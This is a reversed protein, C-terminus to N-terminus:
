SVTFVHKTLGLDHFIQLTPLDRLYKSKFRYGSTIRISGASELCADRVAEFVLVALHDSGCDEGCTRSTARRRRERLQIDVVDFEDDLQDIEALVQGIDPPASPFSSVNSARELQIALETSARQVRRAVANAAEHWGRHRCIHTQQQLRILNAMAPRTSILEEIHLSREQRWRAELRNCIMRAACCRLRPKDNM